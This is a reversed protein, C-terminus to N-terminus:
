YTPYPIGNFFNILPITCLSFDPDSLYGFSNPLPRPVCHDLNIKWKNKNFSAPLSNIGVLPNGNGNQVYYATRMAKFQKFSRFDKVALFGSRGSVLLSPVSRLVKFPSYAETTVTV